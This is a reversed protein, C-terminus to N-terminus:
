AQAPGPRRFPRGPNQPLDDLYAKVHHVAALDLRRAVACEALYAAATLANTTMGLERFIEPLAKCLSEAEAHRDMALLLEATELETASVAGAAGVAEFAARAKRFLTLARELDTERAAIRALNLDIRALVTHDDRATFIRVAQAFHWKAQDLKAQNLLTLGANNYLAGLLEEDGDERAEVILETWVDMAEDLRHNAHLTAAHLLRCKMYLKTEGYEEAIRAARRVCRVAERPKDMRVYATAAIYDSVASDLALAGFDHVALRAQKSAAVADLYRGLDILVLAHENWAQARAMATFIIRQGPRPEDAVDIALKTLEFCRWPLHGSQRVVTVLAEVVTATRHEPHERLWQRWLRPDMDLLTAVLQPSIAREQRLEEAALIFEEKQRSLSRRFVRVNAEAEPPDDDEDQVERFGDPSVWITKRDSLRSALRWLGVAEWVAPDRVAAEFSDRRDVDRAPM